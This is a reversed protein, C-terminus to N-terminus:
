VALNHMLPLSDALRWAALAPIPKSASSL